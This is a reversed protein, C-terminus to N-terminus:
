KQAGAPVLKDVIAKAVRNEPLKKMLNLGESATTWDDNVLKDGAEVGDKLTKKADRRSLWTGIAGIIALVDAAVTAFPVGAVGAAKAVDAAQDVGGKVAPVDCVRTGDEREEVVVAGPPLSQGAPVEARYGPQSFWQCATLLVAALCAAYSLMAKKMTM